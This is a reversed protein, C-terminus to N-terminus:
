YRREIGPAGRVGQVGPLPHDLLALPAPPAAQRPPDALGLQPSPSQVKTVREM